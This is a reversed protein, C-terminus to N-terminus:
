RNHTHCRACGEIVRDIPDYHPPTQMAAFKADRVRNLFSGMQDMLFPHNSGVQRADLENATREITTLAMIITTQDPTQEADNEDILLTNDLIQVQELLSGMKTKLQSKSIYKFNPPYTVKRVNEATQACGIFFYLSLSVSLLVTVWFFCLKKM